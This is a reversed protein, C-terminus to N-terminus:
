LTAPDVLGDQDVIAKRVSEVELEDPSVGKKAALAAAVGAAHGLAACTAGVRTSGLAERDVSICRGAVLLNKVGQPLLCGYPIGYPAPVYMLHGGVAGKSPHVDIPWGGIAISDPFQAQNRIHDGTLTFKGVIRRTERVGIQSGTALIRADRFEHFTERLYKVLAHADRRGEMEARTLDKVDSADGYVRVANVWVIDKEMGGFWPGGFAPILGSRHAERMKDRDVDIDRRGYTYKNLLEDTLMAPEPGIPVLLPGRHSTNPDTHVYGLRFALTMPQLEDGKEYPVGARAAIDGNGTCDIVVKALIAKRGSVSEAFVGKLQKGDLIPDVGLCHLLCHVGAEAVMEDAVLKMIEPDSNVVWGEHDEAGGLKAARKLWEGGVGAVIRKYPRLWSNYGALTLVLGSTWMGGMFGQKEILMTSAGARAAGVAAAVGAPGAGVVVVDVEAFVPTQRCPETITRM